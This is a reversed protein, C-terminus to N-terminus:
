RRGKTKQRKLPPEPVPSDEEPDRAVINVPPEYQQPPQLSNIYTELNKLCEEYAQIITSLSKRAPLFQMMQLCVIYYSIGFARNFSILNQIHPDDSSKLTLLDELEKNAPGAVYYFKWDVVRIGTCALFVFHMVRGLCFIDAWRCFDEPSLESLAPIVARQLMDKTIRPVGDKFFVDHLTQSPKTNLYFDSLIDSLEGDTLAAREEPSMYAVLLELPFYGTAVAYHKLIKRTKEKTEFMDSSLSLGWDIFRLREGHDNVLINDEKIDMHYIGNEHLIQLGKLLNMIGRFVNFTNQFSIGKALFRYLDLDGQSSQLIQYNKRANSNLKGYNKPKVIACKRINSNFLKANEPNINCKRVPYVFYKQQPDIGLLKETKKFEDDAKSSELLKSFTNQPYNTQNECRLAPYFGCGHSGQAILAGGRRTQRKKASTRRRRRTM